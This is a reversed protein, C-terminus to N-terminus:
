SAHEEPPNENLRLWYAGLERVAVNFAAFDVPKRVYSNAGLAYSAVIDDEELSSSLVVVPLLRTRAHARIERLVDLGGVLPLNLDLLVLVPLPHDDNTELLLHLAEAGDRALEIGHRINNHRLARFTLAIDDDNDEVVLIPRDPPLTV